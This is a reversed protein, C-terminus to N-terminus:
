LLNVAARLNEPSLHAYILTMALSGCFFNGSTFLGPLVYIRKM